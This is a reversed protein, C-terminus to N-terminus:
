VHAREEAPRENGRLLCAGAIVLPLSLLALVAARGWADSGQGRVGALLILTGIAIGGVIAAGGVLKPARRGWWGAGIVIAGPLVHAPIGSWDGGEAELAGFLAVFAGVAMLIRAGAVTLDGIMVLGSLARV